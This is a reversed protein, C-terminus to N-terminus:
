TLTDYRDKCSYVRECMCVWFYEKASECSGTGMEYIDTHAKLGTALSCAYYLPASLEFHDPLM